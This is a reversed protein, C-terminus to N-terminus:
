SPDETKPQESALAAREDMQLWRDVNDARCDGRECFLQEFIQAAVQSSTRWWLEGQVVLTAVAIRPNEAPAVGAFWEYRGDPNRGSLSGTKGAVQVPGLLPRGRSRFASRATGRRTTEVLM